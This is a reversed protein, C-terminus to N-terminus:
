RRRCRPRTPWGEGLRRTWVPEGTRADLARAWGSDTALYLTGDAFSPPYELIGFERQKWVTRFPPRIKRYASADRSRLPHLRVDAM